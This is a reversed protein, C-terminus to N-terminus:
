RIKNYFLVYVITKRSVPNNQRTFPSRRMTDFTIPIGLFVSKASLPPIKEAASLIGLLMPLDFGSGEKKINAPALNITIGVDPLHFGSNSLTGSSFMASARTM